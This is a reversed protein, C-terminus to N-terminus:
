HRGSAWLTSASRLGARWRSGPRGAVLLMFGALLLGFGVLLPNRARSGTSALVPTPSNVLVVPSSNSQGAASSGAPPTPPNVVQSPSSSSSESSSVSSSVSESASVSQSPSVSESPCTATPFFRGRAVGNAHVDIQVFCKGDVAELLPLSVSNGFGPTISFDRNLQVSDSGAQPVALLNEHVHLVSSTADPCESGTHTFSVTVTSGSVTISGLVIQVASPCNNAASSSAESSSAATSSAASSTQGDASSSEAASSSTATSAPDDAQAVATGVFLSLMGAAGVAALGRVARAGPVLRITSM